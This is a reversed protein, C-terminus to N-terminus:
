TLTWEEARVQRVQFSASEPTFKDDGDSTIRFVKNDRQRKLVDHYELTVTKDTTITYVSTVGAKQATQAELSTDYTIAAKFAAGETWTTIFGGEGDPTRVKDMIVVPEFADYLLSM